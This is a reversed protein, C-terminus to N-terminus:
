YDQKQRDINVQSKKMYAEEIEEWTLDEFVKTALSIAIAMVVVHGKEAGTEISTSVWELIDQKKYESLNEIIENVMEDKEEVNETLLMIELYFAMIDALEDLVNERDLNHNQKWWKWFGLENVFEFFEVHMAILYDIATPKKLESEELRKTVTLNVAEQMKMLSKFDAKM